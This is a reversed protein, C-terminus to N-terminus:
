QRIRQRNVGLSYHLINIINKILCIHSKVCKTIINKQYKLLQVRKKNNNQQSLTESRLGPQDPVWPGGSLKAKCISPNGTGAVLWAQTM